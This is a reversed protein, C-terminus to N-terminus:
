RFLWTGRCQVSVIQCTLFWIPRLKGCQSCPVKHFFMPRWSDSPMAQFMGTKPSPLYSPYNIKIKSGKKPFENNVGFAATMSQYVCSAVLIEVTYMPPHRPNNEQWYNKLGGNMILALGNDVSRKDGDYKFLTGPKSGAQVSDPLLKESLVANRKSNSDDWAVM